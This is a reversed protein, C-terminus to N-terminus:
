NVKQAIQDATAICEDTHLKDVVAAVAQVFLKCCFDEDPPNFNGCYPCRLSQIFGLRLERVQQEISKIKEFAALDPAESIDLKM